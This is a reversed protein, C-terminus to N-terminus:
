FGGRLKKINRRANLNVSLMALFCAPLSFSLARGRPKLHFRNELSPGILVNILLKIILNNLLLRKLFDEKELHFSPTIHLAILWDM